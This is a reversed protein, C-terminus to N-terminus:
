LVEDGGVEQASIGAETSLIDTCMPHHHNRLYQVLPVGQFYARQSAVFLRGLLYGSSQFNAVFDGLLVRPSTGIPLYQIGNDSMVTQLLWTSEPAHPCTFMPVPSIFRKKKLIRQQHVESPALQCLVLYQCPGRCQQLDPFSPCIPPVSAM